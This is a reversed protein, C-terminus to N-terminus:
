WPLTVTGLTLEVPVGEGEDEWRVWGLTGGTIIGVAGGIVGGAWQGSGPGWALRGLLAGVGTGAGFGLTGWAVGKWMRKPRQYGIIAATVAMAPIPVLEWSIEDPSFRYNGLRANTVVVATSVYAGALGGLGAGMLATTKKQASVPNAFAMGVICAVAVLGWGHRGLVHPSNM